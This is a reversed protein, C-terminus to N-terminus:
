SGTPLLRVQVEPLGEFGVADATVVIRSHARATAAILLDHAGRPRGAKRTHALLDAHAVAVELDYAEIPIGALVADVFARRSAKRRRDALQVGVLLEAATVAAIAVDDQDGVVEEIAATAREAAILITTDLILRDLAPGRAVGRRPARTTRGGL